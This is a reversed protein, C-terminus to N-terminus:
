TSLAFLVPKPNLNRGIEFHALDLADLMRKLRKPNFLRSFGEMRFEVKQFSPHSFGSELIREGLSEKFLFSSFSIFGQLGERSMRAMDNIWPVIELLRANYCM